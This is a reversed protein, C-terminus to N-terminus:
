DVGKVGAKIDAALEKEKIKLELNTCFIKTTL